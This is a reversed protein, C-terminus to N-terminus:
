PLGKLWQAMERSGTGPGNLPFDEERDLFNRRVSFIRPSNNVPRPRESRWDRLPGLVSGKQAKIRENTLHLHGVVDQCGQGCCGDM